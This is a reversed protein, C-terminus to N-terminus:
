RANNAPKQRQEVLRPFMPKSGRPGGSLAGRPGGSLSKEECALDEIVLTDPLGEDADPTRPKNELLFRPLSDSTLLDWIEGYAEDVIVLAEEYTERSYTYVANRAREGLNLTMPSEEILFSDELGAFAAQWVQKSPPRHPDSGLQRFKEAAELFAANETAFERQLQVLFAAKLEPNSLVTHLSLNHTASVKRRSMHWAKRFPMAVSVLFCVQFTVFLAVDLWSWGWLGSMAGVFIVAVVSAAVFCTRIELLLGFSDLDVRVLRFAELSFVVLEVAFTIIFLFTPSHISQMRAGCPASDFIHPNLLVICVSWTFLYIIGVVVVLISLWPRLVWRCRVFISNFHVERDAQGQEQKDSNRIKNVIAAIEFKFVLRAYRLLMLWASLLPLCLYLLNIVCPEVVSLTRWSAILMWVLHVFNALFILNYGRGRLPHLNRLRHYFFSFPIWFICPAVLVAIVYVDYAPPLGLMPASLDKPTCM